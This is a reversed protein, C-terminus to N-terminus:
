TRTGFWRGWVWWGCDIRDIRGIRGIRDIRPSIKASWLQVLLFHRTSFHLIDRRHSHMEGTRGAASHHVWADARCLLSWSRGLSTGPLPRPALRGNLPPRWLAAGVQRRAGGPVMLVRLFM